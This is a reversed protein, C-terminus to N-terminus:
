TYSERPAPCSRVSLNVREAVAPCHSTVAVLGSPVAVSAAGVDIVKSALPVAEGADSDMCNARLPPETAPVGCGIVTDTAFTVWSACSLEAASRECSPRCGPVSVPIEM